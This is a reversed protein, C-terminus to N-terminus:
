FAQFSEPSLRTNIQRLQEVSQRLQQLQSEMLRQTSSTGGRFLGIRALADATGMRTPGASGARHKSEGAAAWEDALQSEQDWESLTSNWGASDFGETKGVSRSSYPVHGLPEGGTAEPPPTSTRFTYRAIAGVPSISIAKFLTVIPVMMLKVVAAMETLEASAIPRGSIAAAIQSWVELQVDQWWFRIREQVDEIESLRSLMADGSAEGGAGIPAIAALVKEPRRGLLDGLPGRDATTMGGSGLSGKIKLAIDLPTAAGRIMDETVGYAGLLGLARSDGAVAASRVSEIRSLAGMIGGVPVGAASAGRRVMLMQAGTMRFQVAADELDDAFSVANQASRMLGHVLAAVAVGIGGGVTGGLFAGGITGTIGGGLLPLFDKLGVGGSGGGARSLAQIEMSLAAQKLAIGKALATGAGARAAAADLSAQRQKLLTIKEEVSLRQYAERRSQAQLDALRKEHVALADAAKNTRLTAAEMANLHKVTKECIAFLGKEEGEVSIGLKM